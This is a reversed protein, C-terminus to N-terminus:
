THDGRSETKNRRERRAARQDAAREAKFDCMETRRRHMERVIHEADSGEDGTPRVTVATEENRRSM